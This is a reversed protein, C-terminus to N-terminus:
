ARAHADLSLLPLPTILPDLPLSLSRRGASGIRLCTSHSCSVVGVSCGSKRCIRILDLRSPHSPIERVQACTLTRTGSLTLRGCKWQSSLIIRLFISVSTLGAEEILVRLCKAKLILAESNTSLTAPSFCRWIRPLATLIVPFSSQSM